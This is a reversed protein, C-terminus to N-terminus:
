NITHWFLKCARRADIDSRIHIVRGRIKTWLYFDLRFTGQAFISISPHLRNAIKELRREEELIKDQFAMSLSRIRKVEEESRMIHSVDHVAKPEGLYNLKTEVFLRAFEDAKNPLWHLIKERLIFREFDSNANHNDLWLIENNDKYYALIASLFGYGSHDIRYIDGQITSYLGEKLLSCYFSDENQFIEARFHEMWGPIENEDSSSTLETQNIFFDAFKKKM